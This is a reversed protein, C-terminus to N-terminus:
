VFENLRVDHEAGITGHQGRPRFNGVRPVVTQLSRFRKEWSEPRDETSGEAHADFSPVTANCVTARTTADGDGCDDVTESSEAPFAPHLTGAYGNITCDWDDVDKGPAYPERSEHGRPAIKM